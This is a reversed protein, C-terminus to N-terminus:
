LGAKASNSMIHDGFCICCYIFVGFNLVRKPELPYMVDLKVNAICFLRLKIIALSKPKRTGAIAPELGAFAIHRTVQHTLHIDIEDQRRRHVGIVRRGLM